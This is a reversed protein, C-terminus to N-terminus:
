YDWHGHIMACFARYYRVPFHVPDSEEDLFQIIGTSSSNNNKMDVSFWFNLDSSVELQYQRNVQGVITIQAKKDATLVVSLKPAASGSSASVLPIFVNDIYAADEGASFSGDKTYRWELRNTGAPVSFIFNTWGVEGSWRQKFAGNLYFELFDWGEESSVKLEFSAVGATMNTNLSLSTKKGDGIAASQVAYKGTSVVNTQVFWPMSATNLWPLKTLTGTEFDDTAVSNTGTTTSVRFNGTVTYDQTMTLILPNDAVTIDGSWSVFEFNNTASATLTVRAGSPYMGSQPSVSGGPTASVNLYYYQGPTPATFYYTLLIDGSAAGYGDISIYYLQNSVVQLDGIYSYGSNQYYDDNSTISVLNTVNINTANTCVFVDLLTDFTSGSTSLSFTGDSPARWTYWISHGGINGAHLPENAELTARGNIAKVSGGNPSLSIADAVNDNTPNVYRVIVTDVAGKNGAYDVAYAQVANTGPPVSITIQWNIPNGSLITNTGYVNIAPQTGVVVFINSVGSDNAFLEKALGRLTLNSSTILAQRNPSTISLTPPRTDATGGPILRLM